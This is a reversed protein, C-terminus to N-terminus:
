SGAARSPIRHHRDNFTRAKSLTSRIANVYQQGVGNIKAQRKTRDFLRSASHRRWSVRSQKSVAGQTLALEEAAETFSGLRAVAEFALLEAFSPM